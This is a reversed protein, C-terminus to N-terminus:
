LILVQYSFDRNYAEVSRLVFPCCEALVSLLNHNRKGTFFTLEERSMKQHHKINTGLKHFIEVTKLTISSVSKWVSIKLPCLERFFSLGTITRLRQM